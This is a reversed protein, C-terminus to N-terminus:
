PPLARDIFAAGKAWTVPDFLAVHGVPGLSTFTKAGTALAFLAQGQAFPVVRDHEGHLILLPATVAAIHDRSLFQDKMLLRVPFLPYAGAAVGSAATFPAELVLAGIRHRAALQVAVGTGLSEGVVAVRGAPIGQSRLFGLAAEGDAILGPETPRGSSGGYGRWSLFAAGHGRDQYFRLRGARDALSGANGHLFLVTPRGAEPPTFWLIVTEGDATPLAIREVGSLGIADPAPDNRSPFYLLDRQLLFLGSVVMAYVLGFSGLTAKIFLM